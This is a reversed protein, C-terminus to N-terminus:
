HLVPLYVNFTAGKGLESSATIFGHHNEVIKKCLALGIGTGAYASKGHLRQFLSFIVKYYQEEFGIGNDQFIIHHYKKDTMSKPVNAIQDREIFKATIKIVPNIKCFKLSNSILNSFLQGLQVSNGAVVPLTACSIAANKEQILLEFDEKVEKVILNLNVQTPLDHNSDKSLRSYDLLSRVLVSM